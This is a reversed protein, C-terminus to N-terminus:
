RGQGANRSVQRSKCKLLHAASHWCKILQQRDAKAKVLRERAAVVRAYQAVSHENVMLEQKAFAELERVRKETQDIFEPLAPAARKVSEGRADTLHRWLRGQVKKSRELKFGQKQLFELEGGALLVQYSNNSLQKPLDKM